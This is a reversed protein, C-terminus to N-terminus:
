KQGAAQPLETSGSPEQTPNGTWETILYLIVDKVDDIDYRDERDLLRGALYVRTRDDVVNLFFNVIGATQTQWGNTSGIMAMLLAMQGDKPRYALCERGDVMFPYTVEEGEAEVAADVAATVFEKM